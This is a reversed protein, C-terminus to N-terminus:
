TQWLKRGFLLRRKIKFTKKLNEEQYTAAKLMTKSISHLWLGPSLPSAPSPAAFLQLHGAPGATEVHPFTFCCSGAAALRSSSFPICVSESIPPRPATAPTFIVCLAGVAPFSLLRLPQLQGTGRPPSPSACGGPCGLTRWSPSTPDRQLGLSGLSDEGVSCNLLM